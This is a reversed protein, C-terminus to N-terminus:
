RSYRFIGEKDERFGKRLEEIFDGGSKNKEKM